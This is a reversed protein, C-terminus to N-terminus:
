WRAIDYHISFGVMVGAILGGNTNGGKFDTGWGYGVGATITPGIGWNKTKAKSTNAGEISTFQVYPCDSTVFWKNDETTGVKLPLEMGINNIFTKSDPYPNLTFETNGDITLWKDNYRFVNHYVNDDTIYISDTMRLTDVRVSAQLKAITAVSSKLQKELDKIEKKSLDLYKELEAKEIIYGQKEYMLEGNKLQYTHITDTLAKINNEYTNAKRNACSTSMALAVIVLLSVILLINKWNNKFFTKIDM